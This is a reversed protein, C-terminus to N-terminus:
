KSISKWDKMFQELGQTTRPHQVLKDFVAKPMTATDAGIMASAAVQRPSRISAVLVETSFHYNHFITVIEEILEMGDHGDDELRGIFPSVM